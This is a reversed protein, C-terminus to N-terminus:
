NELTIAFIHMLCNDPFIIKNVQKAHQFETTFYYMFGKQRDWIFDCFVQSGDRYIQRDMGMVNDISLALPYSVDSFYALAIEESQDTCKLIFKEKFYGWVSFGFLTIKKILINNVDM